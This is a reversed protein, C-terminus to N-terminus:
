IWTAPLSDSQSCTSDSQINRLQRDQLTWLDDTTRWKHLEMKYATCYINFMASNNILEYRCIRQIHLCQVFISCCVCVYVFWHAFKLENVCLVSCWPQSDHWNQLLPTQGLMWIRKRGTSQATFWCLSSSPMQACVQRCTHECAGTMGGPCQGYPQTTTPKSLQSSSCRSSPFKRQGEREWGEGAQWVTRM